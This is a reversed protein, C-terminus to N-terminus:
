ELVRALITTRARVTTGRSPPPSICYAYMSRSYKSARIASTSEYLVLWGSLSISAPIVAPMGRGVSLQRRTRTFRSSGKSTKNDREGWLLVYSKRESWERAVTNEECGCAGRVWLKSEVGRSRKREERESLPAPQIRSQDLIYIYIYLERSQFGQCGLFWGGEGRGWLYGM